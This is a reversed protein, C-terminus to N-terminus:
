RVRRRRAGVIVLGLFGAVGALAIAGFTPRVRTTACNFSSGSSTAQSRPVQGVTECDPGFVPCLPEDTEKTLIMRNSIISQDVSARLQLDVGLASLGLDARMRTVRASAGSMGDFVAVMDEDRVEEASKGGPIPAYGSGQDGGVGWRVQQRFSEKDLDLSSEIEWARYGSAASKQERVQKYNSSQTAWTWAVEDAKIQFFDFNQPEWRGDGVVWLTIGLKAGAGAAVMRLPLIPSAGTTTVRVPRMQQVSAGPVLKMALFDFREKVYAFIIPKVESPVVFGNTALWKNLADADTSKLQVTEYPGVVERKTVEVGDTDEAGASATPAGFGRCNPPPPCNRPPAQVTVQTIADLVGFMADSSLGIKAEGSIPLVWAFSAPNGSYRIQDYLTTQKPSISLVMRHDTVVSTSETPVFCGGCAEADRAVLLLPAAAVM